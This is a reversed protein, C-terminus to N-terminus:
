AHAIRLAAAAAVAAGPVALISFAGLLSLHATAPMGSMVANVAGTGFVLVPVQFPFVLLALLGAGQRLRLTMAAATIGIATMAPTGVLLSLCLTATADPSLDFPLMLVPGLLILPLSTALWNSALRAAVLMPLAQPAVLWQELTGDRADDQFVRQAALVHTLLAAIWLVGPAMAQLLKREAGSALPFLLVIVAFFSLTTLLDARRRWALSMDRYVLAIAANFLPVEATTSNEETGDFPAASVRPINM